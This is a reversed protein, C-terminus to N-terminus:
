KRRGCRFGTSNYFGFPTQKADFTFVGASSAPTTGWNGGRTVASTLGAASAIVADSASPWAGALAYAGWDAVWEDLSGIMNEAGASSVCSPNSVGTVSPSGAGGPINCNVASDTTGRAASQWEANTLLHKGSNNCAANAQFWTINRSPTVNNVSRAYIPAAGGIGCGQGDDGCGGPYDDAAFGYQTGGLPTSWVSTEYKDVCLDGVPVMIDNPVDPNECGGTIWKSARIDGDVALTATPAATAIGIRGSSLNGYIVGGINLENNATAATTGQDYGIVINGTGSTVNYGAQWGLFTNGVGTDLM